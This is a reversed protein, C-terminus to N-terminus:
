NLSAQEIAAMYAATNLTVKTCNTALSAAVHITTGACMIWKMWDNHHSCDTRRIDLSFAALEASACHGGSSAYTCLNSGYLCGQGLAPDDSFCKLRMKKMTCLSYFCGIVLLM